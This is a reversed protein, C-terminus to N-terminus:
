TNSILNYLMIKCTKYWMIHFTNHLLMSAYICYIMQLYHWCMDLSRIGPNGPWTERSRRAVGSCSKSLTNAAGQDSIMWRPSHQHTSYASTPLAIGMDELFFFMSMNDYFHPHNVIAKRVSNPVLRVTKQTIIYIHLYISIHIYTKKCHPGEISIKRITRVMLVGESASFWTKLSNRGEQPRSIDQYQQINHFGTQIQWFHGRQKVGIYFSIPPNLHPLEHISKMGM